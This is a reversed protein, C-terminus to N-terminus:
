IHILSLTVVTQNGGNDRATVTFTKGGLTSTNISSGNGVTGVCSNIGSGGPNDFCSFSAAVVQGRAYTAGQTPSSVSASPPSTDIVTYNRTVTRTNGENDVGTVTFTKGGLGSTNIAAGNAVTGTCSAMGSDPDACSFAAAVTQGHQYSAGESPTTVTVIPPTTDPPPDGPDGPDGPAGLAPAPALGGVVLAMTVLALAGLTRVPTRRM